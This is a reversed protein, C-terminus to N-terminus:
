HPIYARDVYFVVEDAGVACCNTLLPKNYTVNEAGIWGFVV